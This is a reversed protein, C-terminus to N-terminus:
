YRLSFGTEGTPTEWGVQWDEVVASPPGHSMWEVAERVRDEDGEFVAEVAGDARNRVWGDLSLRGAEDRTAARFYVGQVVGSVVVHARVTREM